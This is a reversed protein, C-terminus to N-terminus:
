PHFGASLTKEFHAFNTGKMLIPVGSEILYAASAQKILSQHLHGLLKAYTYVIKGKHLEENLVENSVIIFVSCKQRIAKIGRKISDVVKQQFAIQKWSSEDHFLENNLLTTLCDLLVVDGQQFVSSIGEIKMPREWTRWPRHSSKRRKQHHQIRLAMEHDLPRGCAVYNLRGNIGDALEIALKEAFSSKGSRVGGTIFILHSPEM